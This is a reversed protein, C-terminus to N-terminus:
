LANNSLFSTLAEIIAGDPISNTSPYRESSFDKAWLRASCLTPWHWHTPNTPGFLTFTPRSFASSIHSSSGDVCLTLAARSLLALYNMLSTQGSLNRIDLGLALLGNEIMKCTEKEWDTNGSTLIIPLRINMSELVRVWREPAFCKRQWASTPHLVIYRRPISSLHWDEPPPLLRPPRFDSIEGGVATFLALATYRDGKSSDVINGFLLRHLRNVKKAPVLLTRNGRWVSSALLLSSLRRDFCYSEQCGQSFPSTGFSVGPMLEVLARHSERTLVVSHGDGSRTLFEIAPQHLLLDGLQQRCIILLTNM